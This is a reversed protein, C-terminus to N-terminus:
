QRVPVETGPLERQNTKSRYYHRVRQGVGVAIPIVNPAVKPVQWSAQEDPVRQLPQGRIEVEWIDMVGNDADDLAIVFGTGKTAQAEKREAAEGNAIWDRAPFEAELRFWANGDPMVDVHHEGEESWAESSLAKKTRMGQFTVHVTRSGENHVSGDARLM